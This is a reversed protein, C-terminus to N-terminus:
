GFCRITKFTSGVDLHRAECAISRGRQDLFQCAAPDIAIHDIHVWAFHLGRYRSQPPRSDVFEQASWDVVSNNLANELPEAEFGDLCLIAPGDLRRTMSHIDSALLVQEIFDRTV